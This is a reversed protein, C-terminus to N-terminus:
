PRAETASPRPKAGRGLASLVARKTRGLPALAASEARVLAPGMPLLRIAAEVLARDFPRAAIARLAARRALGSEGIEHLMIALSLSERARVWRRDGASFAALPVEGPADRPPDPGPAPMEAAPPSGPRARFREIAVRYLDHVKSTAQWWQYGELMTRRASAGMRRRLGPDDALKRTQRIFADVDDFPVMLGNEGDVIVDRVMGVPTAICCVESAMAELLPVPGGEIRSTIWYADLSRHVEAVGAHDRVFPVYACRVGAARQRDVLEGWGPGVIACAVNPVRRGVEALARELTDIGKRGSSDSSRKASFGVVFADAPLGLKARIRRREEPSPPRFQEADVGYPVKVLKEPAVGAAILRGEWQGSATAVADYRPEPGLSHQAEVHHITGVWPVKGDFYDVLEFGQEAIQVHVLDFARPLTGLWALERLVGISCITSEMWPNHHAIRRAITGTVWPIYDPVHLVRLKPTSASAAM